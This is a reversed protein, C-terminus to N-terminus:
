FLYKLCKEVIKERTSWINDLKLQFLLDDLKHSFREPNEPLLSVSKKRVGILLGNNSASPLLPSSLLDASRSVGFGSTFRRIM